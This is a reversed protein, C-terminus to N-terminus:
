LTREPLIAFVVQTIVVNLAFLAVGAIVVARNVAEGVAAPGKTATMGNFAAIACATMGFVAAKFESTWFDQMTAFLSFSGWFSGSSGGLVLGNYYFGTAISVTIVVLNLLLSVVLGALMLPGVIRRLPDIGMVRLADFEERITRAGLEACVAAGGVGALILATVIPAAERLIGLADAAGVYSDAGIQSSLGGVQMVIAMGLPAAVLIAPLLTANILFWSRSIFERWIFSGNFVDVVLHRLSKGSMEYMEGIPTLLNRLRAPMPLSMSPGHSGGADPKGM